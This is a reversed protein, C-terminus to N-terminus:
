VAPPSAVGPVAPKAWSRGWLVIMPTFMVTPALWIVLPPLPIRGNNTVVLFATWGAICSGLVNGLHAAVRARREPPPAAYARTHQVGFFVCLGAFPLILIQGAGVGYTFAALGGGIMAFALARAFPTPPTPKLVNMGYRLNGLALLALLALFPVTGLHRGAVLNEVCAAWALVVVGTMAIEYVRGAKRHAPGGKKALIPIWMSVLAVAGALAHLTVTVTLLM